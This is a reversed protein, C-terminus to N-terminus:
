NAHLSRWILCLSLQKQARSWIIAESQSVCHECSCPCLKPHFIPPSNILVYKIGSIEMELHKLAEKLFVRINKGIMQKGTERYEPRESMFHAAEPHACSRVPSILHRSINGNWPSHLSDGAWGLPCRTIM